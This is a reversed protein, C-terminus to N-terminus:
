DARDSLATIFCTGIVGWGTSFIRRDGADGHDHYGLTTGHKARM